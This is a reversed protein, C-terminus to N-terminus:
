AKEVEIGGMMAGLGATMPHGAAVRVCDLPLKDDCGARLV